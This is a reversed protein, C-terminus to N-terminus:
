RVEHVILRFQPIDPLHEILYLIVLLQGNGTNVNFSKSGGFSRKFEIFLERLATGFRQLFVQGYVFLNRGIEVIDGKATFIPFSQYFSQFGRVYFLFGFEEIDDSVGAIYGM